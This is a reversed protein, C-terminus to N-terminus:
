EPQSLAGQAGDEQGLCEDGDYCETVPPGKPLKPPTSSEEVQTSERVVAKMRV